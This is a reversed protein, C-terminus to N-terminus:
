ELAYLEVLESNPQPKGFVFKTYRLEAPLLARVQPMNLYDLVTQKDKIEFMGVVPGGPYGMGKYLSILPSNTTTQTSDVSTEGLLADIKPEEANQEDEREEETDQHDTDIIDSLLQDAEQLLPIFQEGKYAYWLELQATSQLLSTAREVDKVGPLEVLIRGSAGLRQINP